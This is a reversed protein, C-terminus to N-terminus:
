SLLELGMVAWLLSGFYRVKREVDVCQMCVSCVRVM